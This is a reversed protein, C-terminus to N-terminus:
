KMKNYYDSYWNIKAIDEAGNKKDARWAYKFINLEIWTKVAEDGFIDRMVEICEYKNGQYHSPHNVNEKKEIPPIPIEKLLENSIQNIHTM